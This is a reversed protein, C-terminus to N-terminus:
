KSIFYKSKWVWIKGCQVEIVGSWGVLYSFHQCNPARNSRNLISNWNVTELALVCWNAMQRNNLLM